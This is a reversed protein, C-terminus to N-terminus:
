IDMSWYREVTDPLVTAVRKGPGLEAAVQLAAWVNSGSSIGVALGEERALRRCTEIADEDTVTIWEDIVTLDCNTPIFGDGIGQQRHSGVPGGTAAPAHEPEVAVIRTHLAHERLFRGVGTITGGTGVGAIFADIRGDMQELIEPGTTRYHIDPNAPNEFQQLVVVRADDDAMALATKICTDFTEFVNTGVPTLVIEAGYLEVLRRREVSMNEPMVIRARYGKVAAIQAIAIGQNGSTAEVLISDPNLRGDREAAEIM